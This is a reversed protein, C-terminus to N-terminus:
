QSNLEPSPRTLLLANGLVSVSSLAMAGAALAPSMLGLAALPIGIANFCFAWFLGQRIKAHIRRAILLAAPVLMPDGRMLTIGAAAMAAETGNGMALGVDATALAPADNIGDGVMAVRGSLRLESVIRAKDEPLVEAHIEAIRLQAGLAEAAGRNDGSILVTKMDMAHLRRLAAAARAKIVDGFAFLGLVKGGRTLWSVTLGQSLWASAHDEDVEIGRERLWRGSGLSLEEGDLKGTIGRGPVAQVAELKPKELHKGVERMAHALPHESGQALAAALALAERSGEHHVLKPRGETLTGTKDFAVHTIEHALDLARVDRILIGQRAATGMGAMLAAPTALGLACPCAIVLVAVANLLGQQWQGTFLGWGLLTLLAAGLVAPVFVACVKDVLLQIPAKEGQAQEVLRAIRALTSEAGLATCRLELLGSGNVSGGVVRTGPEKAVARSEGTILSEDVESEGVQVVGDVPVREGPRVLVIDGQVLQAVPLEQETGDRRVRATPPQLDQLARIAESTRRKAREELSKGLLVFSVILAASEFYLGQHAAHEGHRFMTWCSLGFAASTGLAVLVDMNASGHSLAAVAGRFFRAGFGFLVIASLALQIWAPLMPAGVLMPAALPLTLALAVFAPWLPTPASPPAAEPSAGYGAKEVAAILCEMGTPETLQIRVTEAALNVQAESVGEVKRLAREVRGACAACSMGTIHLSIPTSM